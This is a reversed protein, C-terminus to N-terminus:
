HSSKSDNEFIVFKWGETLALYCAKWIAWAESALASAVCMKGSSAAIVQSTPDRAVAGYTGRKRTASFACDCNVKVWGPPPASWPASVAQKSLTDTGAVRLPHLATIAM